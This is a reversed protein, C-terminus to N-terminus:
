PILVIRIATHAPITSLVRWLGLARGSNKFIDTTGVIKYAGLDVIKLGVPENSIVTVYHTM